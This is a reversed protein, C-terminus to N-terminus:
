LEERDRSGLGVSAVQIYPIRLTKMGTGKAARTGPGERWLLSLECLLFVLWWIMEGYGPGKRGERDEM